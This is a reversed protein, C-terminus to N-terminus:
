KQLEKEYEILQSCFGINPSICKRKGVVLKYAQDFKMQKKKMIYAIVITASRSVGARCHIFVNKRENLSIEIIDFTLEFFQKINVKEEDNIGIRYYKFKTKYYFPINITVNVITQIDKECLVNFNNAGEEGSLYLGPIIESIENYVSNANTQLRQLAFKIPAFIIIPKNDDVYTNYNIFYFKNPYHSELASKLKQSFTGDILYTITGDITESLIKQIQTQMMHNTIYDIFKEPKTIIRQRLLCHLVLNEIGEIHEKDYIEKSRGDVIINLTLPTLPTLEINTMNSIDSAM